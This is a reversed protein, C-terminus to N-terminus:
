AEEALTLYYDKGVVFHNLLDPNTINMSLNGSPTWKSWQVNEPGMVANFVVSVQDKPKPDGWAGTSVTQKAEICRFKAIVATSM